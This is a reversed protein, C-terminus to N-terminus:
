DPIDDRPGLPTAASPGPPAFELDSELPPHPALVRAPTGHNLAGDVRSGSNPRAPARGAESQNVSAVPSGPPRKARGAPHGLEGPNESEEPKAPRRTAQRGAGQTEEPKATPPERDPKKRTEDSARAEAGGGSLVYAAMAAAEDNNSTYHEALFASLAARDMGKALGRSSKHCVSCDNTFIHAPTKGEDINIQAHALRPALPGSLGILLGTALRIAIAFRRSVAIKQFGPPRGTM